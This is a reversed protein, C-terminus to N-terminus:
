GPPIMWQWAVGFTDFDTGTRTAIGSTASLKLSQLRTLPLSLTLGFRSNALEVGQAVGDVRAKGGRYYTADFALWLRPKFDRVVHVQVASIPDQERTADVLYEDNDQFFTAAVSGEVSWRGLRHTVGLETRVAWRNTGINIVRDLDYQGTPAFVTVAVGATTPSRGGAAFEAPTAAPAGFFLLSAGLRADGFGQVLREAPEGNLLGTAEGDAWPLVVSLKGTKGFLAFTRAYGLALARVSANADEVPISPDFVLDGSSYGGALVVFQLGVPAASFARPEM